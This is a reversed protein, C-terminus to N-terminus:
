TTLAVRVAAGILALGALGLPDAADADHPWAGTLGVLLSWVLLASGLSALILALWRSRM